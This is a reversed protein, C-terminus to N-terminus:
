DTGDAAIIEGFQVRAFRPVGVILLNRRDDATNDISNKLTRGSDAAGHSLRAERLSGSVVKVSAWDTAAPDRAGAPPPPACNPSRGANQRTAAVTFGVGSE